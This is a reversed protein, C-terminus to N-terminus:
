AKKVQSWYEGDSHTSDGERVAPERSGAGMGYQSSEWGDACPVAAWLAHAARSVRFALTETGSDGAFRYESVCYSM